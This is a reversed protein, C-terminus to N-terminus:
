ILVFAFFYLVLAFETKHINVTIGTVAGCNIECKGGNATTMDCYVKYPRFFADPQILYMESSDGGKRIIDECEAIM